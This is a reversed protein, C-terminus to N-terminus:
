TENVGHANIGPWWHVRWIIYHERAKTRVGGEAAGNEGALVAVAAM